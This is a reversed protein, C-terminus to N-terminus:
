ALDGTRIISVPRVSRRDAVFADMAYSLGQRRAVILVVELGDIGVTGALRSATRRDLSSASADMPHAHWDGLYGLRSDADQIQSVLRRTASAPLVYHAPGVVSAWVECAQTIWPRRDVWVGVLIGGTESPHARVAAERM